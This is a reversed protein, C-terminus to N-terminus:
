ILGTAHQTAELIRIGKRLQPPTLGTYHQFVSCFHHISSYGLRDALEDLPLLQRPTHLLDIAELTRRCHLLQLFSCRFDRSIVRSLYSSNVDLLHALEQLSLTAYQADLYHASRMYLAPNRPPPTQLIVSRCACEVAARAELVSDASAPLHETSWLLLQTIHNLHITSLDNLDHLWLLYATRFVSRNAQEPPLSPCFPHQTCVSLAYERDLFYESYPM